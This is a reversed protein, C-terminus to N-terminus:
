IQKYRHLQVWTHEASLRTTSKMIDTAPAAKRSLKSLTFYRKDVFVTFKDFPFLSDLGFNKDM